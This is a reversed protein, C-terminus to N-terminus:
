VIQIEQRPIADIWALDMSRGKGDFRGVRRWFNMGSERAIILGFVFSGCVNWLLPVARIEDSWSETADATIWIAGADKPHGSSDLTLRKEGVTEDLHVGFLLGRLILLGGTVEGFPVKSSAVAVQCDVVTALRLNGTDREDDPRALKDLRWEGSVLGDVSAWSWSPARYTKPRDCKHDAKWLLDLLLTKRWLGALYQDHNLISFLEAVAAFAPLRDSPVTVSRMTYQFLAALWSQRLQAPDLQHDASHSLLAGPPLRMGTSEECLAGGINATETQCYYKLTDCAFVLSRAPLIKEQYCWGRSIIPELEDWYTQEPGDKKRSLIDYAVCVTGTQGDSCPFPLKTRPERQPRPQHLFGEHTSSASAANITIYSNKYIAHMKGLQVTKDEPSDQLICLADIWLYRQGIKNTATIADQISQPFDTMIFGDTTYKGVNKTTLMPQPGGWVYSLTVYPAYTQGSTLVIKPNSTNACDIVRDPLLSMTQLPPCNARHERVCNDICAKAMSFAEETWLKTIRDRAKIMSAAEDDRTTYLLLEDTMFTSGDKLDKVVVSLLKDGVPTYRSDKYYRVTVQAAGEVQRKPLLRCWNCIGAANKIATWAVIYTYGGGEPNSSAGGGAM